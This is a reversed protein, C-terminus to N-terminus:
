DPLAFSNYYGTSTRSLREFYFLFLSARLAEFNLLLKIAVRLSGRVSLDESKVKSQNVREELYAWSVVLLRKNFDPMVHVVLDPRWWALYMFWLVVKQVSM